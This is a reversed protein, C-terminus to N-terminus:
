KKTPSPANKVTKYLLDKNKSKKLQLNDQYNYKNSPWEEDDKTTIKYLKYEKDLKHLIVEKGEINKTLSKYKRGSFSILEKFDLSKLDRLVNTDIQGIEEWNYLPATPKSCNQKDLNWM